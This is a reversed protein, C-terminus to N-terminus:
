LSDLFDLYKPISQQIWEDSSNREIGYYAFFPRYDARVYQFSLEFPRTLEELTYKYKALPLYEDEDIGLSIALAIKKGAM